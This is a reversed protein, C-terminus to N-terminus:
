SQNSANFFYSIRKGPCLYTAAGKSLQHSKISKRINLQTEYELDILVADDNSTNSGDSNYVLVVPKLPKASNVAMVLAFCDNSLMVLSGPPYVGMSHIMLNLPIPDFWAKQQSFMLSLAEHPTLSDAPNLRNCYNDYCNVMSLIRALPDIEAMKLHKPYGSGDCMEHHQSIIHLVAAPLGAAKGANVGWLCHQQYIKTEASTLPDTKLVIRGSLQAKGIDHFLAAMGLTHIDQKPLQMDRALILSLVAVNLPHYYFAESPSKDNMLHIVLDSDVLLSDLLQSVLHYAGALTEKPRQSLQEDIRRVAQLTASFAKACEARQKKNHEYHLLLSQKANIAAQVESVICPPALPLSELLGNPAAPLPTPLMDSKTPSYRIKQLGLQRITVVQEDSDIKFSGFTFPHQTWPLDLHVYLGVQLQSPFIFHVTKEAQM